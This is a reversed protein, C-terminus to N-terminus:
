AKRQEVKMKQSALQIAEIIKVYGTCRCIHGNLGEKIEAETPHPSRDLFDKAQLIMGPTCYGCQIAGAEIFAEQIPHLRNGRALGEITTVEQEQAKLALLNCTTRAHGNV